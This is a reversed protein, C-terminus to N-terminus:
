SSADGRAYRRATEHLFGLQAEFNRCMLCADLHRRLADREAQTLERECALSILRSAHRCDLADDPAM